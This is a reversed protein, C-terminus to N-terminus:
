ETIIVLIVTIIVITIEDIFFEAPQGYDTWAETSMQINTQKNM